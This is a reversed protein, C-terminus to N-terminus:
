WSKIEQIFIKSRTAVVEKAIQVSIGFHFFGIPPEVYFGGYLRRRCLHYSSLSTKLETSEGCVRCATSWECNMKLVHILAEQLKGLQALKRAALM